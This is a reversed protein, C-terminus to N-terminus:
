AARRLLWRVDVAFSWALLASAILSVPAILVPPALPCILFLLAAIQVVCITKRRFSAPLDYKLAPLFISAAVFAYRMFGLVLVEPGTVGTVLLWLSLVAGLAADTEMDFRAGFESCLGSRRALWGDVGDLSFAVLGVWFVIWPSVDGASWLAGFAFVMMATRTLTVTNCLGLVRHPFDASLLRTALAICLGFALLVIASSSLFWSASMWLVLALGGSQLMFSTLPTKHWTPALARNTDTDIM